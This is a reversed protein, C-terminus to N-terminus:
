QVKLLINKTEAFYTSGLYVRLIYRKHEKFDIEKELQSNKIILM